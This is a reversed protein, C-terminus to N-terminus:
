LGWYGSDRLGRRIKNLSDRRRAKSERYIEDDHDCQKIWLKVGEDSLDCLNDM